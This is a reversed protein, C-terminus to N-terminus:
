LYFARAWNCIDDVLLRAYIHNNLIALRRQVDALSSQDFRELAWGSWHIADQYKGANILAGALAGANRAFEYPWPSREALEVSLRLLTLKEELQEVRAGAMYTTFPTEQADFARKAEGESQAVNRYALTGAYLARLEPAENATLYREVVDRMTESRGTRSATSLRWYLVGEDTYDEPLRALLRWLREHLGREHYIHGAHLLITPARDPLHDVALKFAEIWREQLVLVNLLSEKSIVTLGEDLLKPGSAGPRLPVPLNLEGHLETLFPELVGRSQNYIELVLSDNFLGRGLDLADERSLQLTAEDVLLVGPPLEFGEPTSAFHIIVRWGGSFDLLASAFDVGFEAGSLVITFPGLLSLHAELVTLGFNFSLGSGFLPEGLAYAVALALKDGQSVFDDRDLEDLEIWIPPPTEVENLLFSVGYSPESIFVMHSPHKRVLVLNRQLWTSAALSATRRREFDVFSISM